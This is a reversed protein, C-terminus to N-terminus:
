LFRSMKGSFRKWLVRRRRQYDLSDLGFNFQCIYDNENLKAPPYTMEGASEVYGGPCGAKVM